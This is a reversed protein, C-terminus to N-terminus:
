NVLRMSHTGQLDLLEVEVDGKEGTSVEVRCRFTLHVKVETEPCTAKTLTVGKPLTTALRDAIDDEILKWHLTKKCGASALLVFAFPLVRRV